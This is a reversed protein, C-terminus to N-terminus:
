VVRMITSFFEVTGDQAKHSLIVQSVPIERGNRSLIATRGSWVNKSIAAPIGEELIIKNAWDPHFDSISSKSIDEEENIGIMKRAAMNLYLMRGEKDAAGIFDGTKDLIAALRKSGGEAHGMETIDEGSSLSGCINGNKDTLVGNHWAILREEGDKNFVPHIRYEFKKGKGSMLKSFNEKMEKRLREPIFGDFWNKGLIDEEYYGLVEAGKKNILKVKENSDIAILIVGAVDLYQQARDREEQLAIARAKIERVMRNFSEALAGIEDRSRVPITINYNGKAINGAAAAIKNLPMMVDRMYLIFLIGVVGIVIASTILVGSRIEFIPTFVEAEDIEVLLTWKLSPICMSAGIVKVGRYDKYFSAMGKNSKLCAEVPPADVVQKLVAGKVFISETLMLKDKNVLYAEFTKRKEVVRHTPPIGLEKLLYGRTISNLMSLNMCNVLIGIPEGTIRNSIFASIAVGYQKIFSDGAETFVVREKGKIFFPENSADRGIVSNDTSAIIHGDLSLIHIVQITKDLSIKNKLLHDNLSEVAHRNGNIIERVKEGIFGDSAFDLARQKSREIFQYILREYLEAIVTLDNLMGQRLLEKNSRYTVIFTVVIPLLIVFLALFAKRTLSFKNM